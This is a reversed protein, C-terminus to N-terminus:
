GLSCFVSGCIFLSGHALGYIVENVAGTLSLPSTCARCATAGTANMYTGVPCLLCATTSRSTNSFSGARCALCATLGSIGAFTGSACRLCVGGAGYTGAPCPSCGSGLANATTGNACLVCGVGSLSGNASSPGLPSTCSLCASVSTAGASAIYQNSQPCKFCAAPAGAAYSGASCPGCTGSKTSVNM